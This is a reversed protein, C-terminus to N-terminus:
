TNIKIHLLYKFAKAYKKNCFAYIFPNCMSNLYAAWGTVMFIRESFLCECIGEMLYLTTFPLWCLIFCCVVIAITNVSKQERRLVLYEPGNTYTNSHKLKSNVNRKNSNNLKCQHKHQQNESQDKVFADVSKEVSQISDMNFNMEKTDITPSNCSETNNTSGHVANTSFNNKNFKKTIHFMPLRFMQISNTCQTSTESNVQEIKKNNFSNTINQDHSQSVPIEGVNGHGTCSTCAVSNSNVSSFYRKIRVLQRNYIYTPSFLLKFSGYRYETFDNLFKITNFEKSRRRIVYFIHTYIFVVLIFPVVFTSIGILSRYMTDSRINCKGIGTHHQTGFFPPIMILLSLAWVCVIVNLAIRRTRKVIYKMPYIIAVYRDVSICCINLISATCLLVNSSLWFICLTASEYPWYGFKQRVVFLPLLMVAVLLDALALSAIYLDTVRRLRKTSVVAFIVLLNGFFILIASIIQLFFLITNLMYKMQSFNDSELHPLIEDNDTSNFNIRCLTCFTIKGFAKMIFKNEFSRNDNLVLQNM